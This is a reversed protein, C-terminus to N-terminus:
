AYFRGAVLALSFVQLVFIGGLVAAVGTMRRSAPLVTVAAATASGMLSILPLLYRGQNFPGSGGVLTRFETWHLGALLAGAAVAFFGAIAWDIRARARVVAVSAGALILVTILALLIYVPAPFKIELWGFAAWGGKLWV